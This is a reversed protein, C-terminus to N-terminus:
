SPYITDRLSSISTKQRQQYLLLMFIRCTNCIDPLKPISCVHLLFYGTKRRVKDIKEDEDNEDTEGAEELAQKQSMTQLKKMKPKDEIFPLHKLFHFLFFLLTGERLSFHARHKTLCIFM